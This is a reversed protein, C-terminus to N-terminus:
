VTWTIAEYAAQAEAVTTAASVASKGSLRTKEIVHSLQAFQAYKARVLQACEWLTAAELGVSAALTPYAAIREAESLANAATEGIENVLEAQEFKERYTMAMGDGPTIHKLRVLEADFDVQSILKQKTASLDKPTVTWVRLVRSSEIQYVPGSITHTEPNHSPKDGEVARWQARKHEPVDALVIDSRTEAIQNEVLRAITM